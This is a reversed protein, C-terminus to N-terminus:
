LDSAQMHQLPELLISSSPVTTDDGTSLFMPVIINYFPSSLIASQGSGYALGFTIIYQHRTPSDMLLKM